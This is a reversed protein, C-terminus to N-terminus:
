YSAADEAADHPFWTSLEDRIRRLMQLWDLVAASRLNV